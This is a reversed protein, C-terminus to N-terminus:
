FLDKVLDKKVDFIIVSNIVITIVNKKEILIVSKVKIEFIETFRELQENSLKM